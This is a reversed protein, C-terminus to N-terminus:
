YLFTAVEPKMFDPLGLLDAPRHHRLLKEAWEKLTEHSRVNLMSKFVAGVGLKDM